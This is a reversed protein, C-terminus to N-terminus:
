ESTKRIEDFRECVQQMGDLTRYSFRHLLDGNFFLIRKHAVAPIEPWSQWMEVAIEGGHHTPVVIVQPKKEVVSELSVQPYDQSPDSYINEAGCGNFIENIWSGGAMARLPKSWLQYFFTVKEKGSYKSKLEALRMRYNAALQEGTQRKGIHNAMAMIENPIDELRKTTSKYLPVGLSEIRDLDKSPNGGEWAIVIDPELELVRDIQIGSYGGIRPISKAQEPYDAFETTGVIKDGVGLLFLIEVSHPSLAIIREVEPETAAANLVIFFGALVPLMKMQLM